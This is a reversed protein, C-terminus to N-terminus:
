ARTAQPLPPAEGLADDALGSTRAQEAIWAGATSVTEGLADVSRSVAESGAGALAQERALEVQQRLRELEAEIFALQDQARGQQGRRSELIELQGELSRRLEDGADPLRGRLEAIRAGLDEGKRAERVLRALGRRATLLRLHVWALRALAEAQGRVAPDDAGAHVGHAEVVERCREDLLEQAARDDRDLRALAATRRAEQERRAPAAQVADVWRRFRPSAVLMYLYALELGAGLLWFGPHVLGLLGATALGLWNPPLPMGLPRANFAAKLYRWIGTAV